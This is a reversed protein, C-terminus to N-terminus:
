RFVDAIRDLSWFAALSGMAYILARRATDRRPLRTAVRGLLAVAVVIASNEVADGADECQTM